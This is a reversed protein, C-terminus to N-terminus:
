GRCVGNGREVTMVYKGPKQNVEYWEVFKEYNLSAVDFGTEGQEILFAILEDTEKPSLPNKGRDEDPTPKILQKPQDNKM